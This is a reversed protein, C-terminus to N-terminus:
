DENEEPPNVCYPEVFVIRTKTRGKGHRVGKFHGQRWHYRLKRGDKSERGGYGKGRLGEGYKRGLFNPSWLAEERLKGKKWRAPRVIKETNIWEDKKMSMFCLTKIALEVIQTVEDVDMRQAQLKADEGLEEGLEDYKAQLFGDAYFKDKSQVIVKEISDGSLPYKSVLTSGSNLVAVVVLYPIVQGKAPNFESSKMKGSELSDQVESWPQHNSALKDNLAENFSFEGTWQDRYEFNRTISFCALEEGDNELPWAGKPFVIQMSPLPFIVEDLKVGETLGSKDLMQLTQGDIFYTPYELRSLERHASDIVTANFGDDMAIKVGTEPDRKSWSPDNDIETKYNFPTSTNKLTWQHVGETFTKPKNSGLMTMVEAASYLRPDYHTEPVSYKKRFYEKQAVVPIHKRLKKIIPNLRDSLDSIMEEGEKVLPDLRSVKVEFPDLKM